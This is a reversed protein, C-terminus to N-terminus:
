LLTQGTKLDKGSTPAGHKHALETLAPIDVTRSPTANVFPVGMALAAYAYIMSPAIVSHDSDRMAIEFAALTEHAVAPELYSETSGCWLFVCRDIKHEQQFRRIDQQVQDALDFFDRGSKKFTVNGRRNFREDFIGPWPRIKSLEHALTEILDPELAAARRSAAYGDTDLIDWAGFVLDELGPLKVYDRIHVHRPSGETGVDLTGLLALSGIPQALGRKIAEVGAILTTSIAGLGGFLVGIRGSSAGSSSWAPTV